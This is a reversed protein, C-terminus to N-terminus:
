RQAERAWEGLVRSVAVPDHEISAEIDRRMREALESPDEVAAASRGVRSLWMALFAMVLTLTLTTWALGATWADVTAPKGFTMKASAHIRDGRAEDFGIAHKVMDVVVSTTEAPDEGARFAAEDLVVSATIRHIAPALQLEIKSGYLEPDVEKRQIDGAQERRMRSPFASVAPARNPDTQLTQPAERPPGSEVLSPQVGGPPVNVGTREETHRSLELNVTVVARGPFVREVAGVAKATLRHEWAEQLALFRRGAAVVTAADRTVRSKDTKGSRGAGRNAANESSSSWADFRSDDLSGADSGSTSRVLWMRTGLGAAVVIVIGLVGLRFGQGVGAWGSRIRALFARM